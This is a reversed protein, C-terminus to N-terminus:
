ILDHTQIVICRFSFKFIVMFSEAFCRVHWAKESVDFEESGGEFSSMLLPIGGFGFMSGSFRSGKKSSSM